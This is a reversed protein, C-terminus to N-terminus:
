PTEKAATMRAPLLFRWSWNAHRIALWLMAMLFVGGHVALM